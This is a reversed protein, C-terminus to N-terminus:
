HCPTNNSGDNTKNQADELETVRLKLDRILKFIENVPKIDYRYVFGTKGRLSLLIDMMAREYLAVDRHNNLITRLIGNRKPPILFEIKSDEKKIIVNGM